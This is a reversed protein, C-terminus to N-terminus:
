DPLSSSFTCASSFSSIAALSTVDGLFNNTRNMCSVSTEVDEACILLFDYAKKGEEEEKKM